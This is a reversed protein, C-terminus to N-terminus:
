TNISDSETYPTHILASGLQPTHTPPPTTLLCDQPGLERKGHPNQPVSVLHDSRMVLVDAQTVEGDQGPHWGGQKHLHQSISGLAQPTCPPCELSQAVNGINSFM